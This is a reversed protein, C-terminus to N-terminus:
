SEVYEIKVVEGYSSVQQYKDHHKYKNSTEVIVTHNDKWYAKIPLKEGNASYISGSGGKLTIVVDTLAHEGKGSFQVQLKDVGNPAFEEALLWDKDLEKRLKQYDAEDVTWSKKGQVILYTKNIVDEGSHSEALYTERKALLNRLLGVNSEEEPVTAYAKLYKEVLYVDNDNISGKLIIPLADAKYQEFVDFDYGTNEKIYKNLGRDYKERFMLIHRDLRKKLQASRSQQIDIETQKLEQLYWQKSSSYEDFLMDIAHYQLLYNLTAILISKNKERDEKTYAL